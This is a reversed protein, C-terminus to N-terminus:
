RIDGLRIEEQVNQLKECTGHPQPQSSLDALFKLDSSQTIWM